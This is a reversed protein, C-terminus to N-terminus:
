SNKLKRIEATLPPLLQFLDALCGYDATEFIPADKDTNVAVITKSGRIGALHQVAGSVGFALYLRPAVTKGTLGVQRSQPQFGADVVARSAGVAGDLLRALEELLKFNEATKLPRGGTVVVDAETVDKEEGGTRVTETAAAREDGPEPRLALRVIEATVGGTEPAAYANPAVAAVKLEGSLEVRATTKGCYMSRTCLLRGDRLEVASCDLAVPASFRAATRAALDRGLATASTLLVTPRVEEVARQLARAYLAAGYTKLKEDEVVLVKAAGLKSVTEATATQDAGVLVAVTTGGGAEALSKAASFLQRAAPLPTGERQELFILVENSM